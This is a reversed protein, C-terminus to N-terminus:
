STMAKILEELAARQRRDLRNAEPPPIWADTEGVPVGAARRLEGIPIGFALHLSKLTKENPHGHSPRMYAAVTEHSVKAAHAIERVSRGGAKSRLLDSLASM